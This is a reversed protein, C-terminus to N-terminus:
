APAFRIDPRSALFHAYAYGALLSTQFFLLCVTWVAPGGGFWPLIYRGMMPELQFLLFSSLFITIPFLVHYPSFLLSRAGPDGWSQPCEGPVSHPTVLPRDAQEGFPRAASAAGPKHRPIGLRM